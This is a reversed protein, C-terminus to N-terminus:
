HFLELGAQADLVRRGLHHAEQHLIEQVVGLDLRALKSDIQLVEVNKFGDLFDHTDLPILGPLSIDIKFNFSWLEVMVKRNRKSCFNNRILFAHHLDKKVQLGVSELEGLCPTDDDTHLDDLL